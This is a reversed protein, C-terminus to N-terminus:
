PRALLSSYLQIYQESMLSGGRLLSSKPGASGPSARGEWVLDISHRLGLHTREPAVLGAGREITEPSGGTDFTIVPTGCAMAELNTTPYNDEMTPNLYVDAAAYVEALETASSVYPIHVVHQPLLTGSPLRGVIVMHEDAWLNESLGLLHPLGKRPTWDAAVGVLVKGGGLNHRARFATPDRPGFAPSPDNPIVSVPHGALVSEPLQAALWRSPTVLTLDVGEYASRKDELNQASRDRLWSAPYSRLQPTKGCGNKWRDCGVFDYYACHGTFAWCDHLTWVVPIRSEALHDLLIRYNVYYGHLNHLHVLDLDITKLREVLRVTDRRSGLGHRDLLRTEAGHSAQGLRTGIKFGDETAVDDRGVALASRHGAAILAQHIDSVIRGTSGRGAVSNIQLVKM